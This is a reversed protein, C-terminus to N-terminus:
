QCAQATSTHRLTRLTPQTQPPSSDTRLIESQGKSIMNRRLLAWVPNLGPALVSLTNMIEM